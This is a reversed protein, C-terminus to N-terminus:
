LCRPTPFVIVVNKVESRYGGAGNLVLGGTAGGFGFYAPTNAVFGSLAV